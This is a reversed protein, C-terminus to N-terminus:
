SWGVTLDLLRGSLRARSFHREATTRVRQQYDNGNLGQDAISCALASLSEALTEPSSSSGLNWESCWQTLECQGHSLVVLASGAAMSYIAKSPIAFGELGQELSVLAIDATSLSFPLTSEDQWPLVRVNDLGERAVFEQAFKWKPGSGILMFQIHPKGRLANAASLIAEIDHGLGMNGSYMVTLKDSQGYKEAFWNEHKSIPRIKDTDVWPYVVEVKGSQTRSADFQTALNSAMFEGLTMVVTAHNYALRNLWRWIRVVPHSARYGALTVLLDPYIDHVMVAYRQRRLLHMVYGLWCLMPPNSYLLLPVDSPWRWLWLFAQGLYHLWSLSRQLLTGRRYPAAGCVLVSETTGKALTDPHGTLLAVYGLAGGADEAFEWTMPGAMQNLILLKPTKM